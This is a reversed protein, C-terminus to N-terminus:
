IELRNEGSLQSLPGFYCSGSAAVQILSLHWERHPSSFIFCMEINLFLSYYYLRGHLGTFSEMFYSTWFEQSESFSLENEVSLKMELVM